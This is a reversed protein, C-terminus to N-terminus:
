KNEIHKPSPQSSSPLVMSNRSLDLLRKPKITMKDMYTREEFLIDLNVIHIQHEGIFNQPLDAISDTVLAIKSKQRTLISNQM